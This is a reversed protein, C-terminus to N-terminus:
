PTRPGFTRTRRVCAGAANSRSVARGSPWARSRSRRVRVYGPPRWVIIESVVACHDAATRAVRRDREHHLSFGHDRASRAAREVHYDRLAADTNVNCAHRGYCGDRRLRIAGGSAARFTRRSRLDGPRKAKLLTRVGHCHFSRGCRWGCRDVGQRGRRRYGGLGRGGRRGCPSWGSCGFGRGRSRRRRCSRRDRGLDLVVNALELLLVGGVPLLRVARKQVLEDRAVGFAEDVVVAESGLVGLSECALAARGRPAGILVAPDLLAPEVGRERDAGLVSGLGSAIIAVALSSVCCVPREARRLTSSSSFVASLFRRAGGCDKELPCAAGSPVLGVDSLM